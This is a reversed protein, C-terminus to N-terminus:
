VGEYSVGEPMEVPVQVTIAEGGSTVTMEEVAVFSTFQTLLGFSVGLDIVQRRLAEPFEDRQAAAYDQRMLHEVKSRAWLSALGTNETPVIASLDLTREYPGA